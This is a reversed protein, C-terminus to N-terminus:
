KEIRGESVNLVVRLSLIDTMDVQESGQASGTSAPLSSNISVHSDSSICKVLAMILISIPM